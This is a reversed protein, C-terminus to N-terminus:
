LALHFYPLFTSAFLNLPKATIRAFSSPFMFLSEQCHSNPYISPSLLVMNLIHSQFSKGKQIPLPHPCVSHSIDNMSIFLLLRIIPSHPFTTVKFKTSKIVDLKLNPNKPTLKINNIQIGVTQNFFIYLYPLPYGLCGGSKIIKRPPNAASLMYDYCWSHNILFLICLLIPMHFLCM